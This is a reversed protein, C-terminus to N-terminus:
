LRHRFFMVNMFWHAEIRRVIEHAEALFGRKAAIANVRRSETVYFTYESGGLPSFREVEAKGM